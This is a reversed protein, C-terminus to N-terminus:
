IEDQQEWINETVGEGGPVNDRKDPSPQPSPTLVPQIETKSERMRDKEWPPLLSVRKNGKIDLM